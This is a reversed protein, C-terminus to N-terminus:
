RVRGKWMELRESLFADVDQLVGDRGQRPPTKLFHRVEQSLAQFEEASRVRDLKDLFLASRKLIEGRLERSATLDTAAWYGDDAATVWLGALKTRLESKPDRKRAQAKQKDEYAETMSAYTQLEERSVGPLLSLRGSGSLYSQRREEKLADQDDAADLIKLAHFAAAEIDAASVGLNHVNASFLIADFSSTRNRIQRAHLKNDGEDGKARGISRTLDAKLQPDYNPDQLIKRLRARGEKSDLQAGAFRDTSLGLLERSLTETLRACEADPLEVKAEPHVEAYLRRLLPEFQPSSLARRYSDWIGKWHLEETAWDNFAMGDISVQDLLFQRFDAFDGAPIKKLDLNGQEDHLVANFLPSLLGKLEANADEAPPSQATGAGTARLHTHLGKLKEALAEVDGADENLATKLAIEQALVKAVKTELLPPRAEPGVLDRLEVGQRRIEESLDQPSPSLFANEASEARDPAIESSPHPPESITPRTGVELKVSM